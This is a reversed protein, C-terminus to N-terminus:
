ESDQATPRIGAQHTRLVALTLEQRFAELTLPPEREPIPQALEDPSRGNLSGLLLEATHLIVGLDHRSKLQGSNAWARLDTDTEALSDAPEGSESGALRCAALLTNLYHKPFQGEPETPDLM